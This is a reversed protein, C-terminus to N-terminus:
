GLPRQHESHSPCQGSPGAGSLGAATASERVRRRARALCCREPTDIFNIRQPEDGNKANGTSINGDELNSDWTNAM